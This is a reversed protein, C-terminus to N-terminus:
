KLVCLIFLSKSTKSVSIYLVVKSLPKFLFADIFNDWLTTELLLPWDILCFHYFCTEINIHIYMECQALWRVWEWWINVSIYTGYKKRFIVWWYSMLVKGVTSREGQQFPTSSESTDVRTAWSEIWDCTIVIFRNRKDLRQCKSSIILFYLLDIVNRLSTLTWRILIENRGDFLCLIKCIKV